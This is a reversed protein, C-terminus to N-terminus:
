FNLSLTMRLGRSIFSFSRAISGPNNRHHISAKKRRWLLDAQKLAGREARQIHKSRHLRFTDVSPRWSIFSGLFELTQRSDHRWM